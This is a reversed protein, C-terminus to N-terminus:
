GVPDGTLNTQVWRSVGSHVIPSTGNLPQSAVQTEIKALLRKLENVDGKWERIWIVVDAGQHSVAEDFTRALERREGTVVVQRGNLDITM